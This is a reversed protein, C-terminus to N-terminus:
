VEDFADQSWAAFRFLYDNLKLQQELTIGDWAGEKACKVRHEAFVRNWAKSTKSEVHLFKAGEKNGRFHCKKCVQRFVKGGEGWPRSDWETQGDSFNRCSKTTYDYRHGPSAMAPAVFAVSILLLVVVGTVKM